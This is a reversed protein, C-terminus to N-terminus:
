KDDLSMMYRLADTVVQDFTKNDRKAIAEIEKILDLPLDVEVDVFKVEKDTM